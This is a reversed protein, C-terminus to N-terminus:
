AVPNALGKGWYLLPLAPAHPAGLLYMDFKHHGTLTIVPNEIHTDPPHTSPSCPKGQCVTQLVRM